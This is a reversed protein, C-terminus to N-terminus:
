AEDPQPDSEFVTVPTGPDRSSGEAMSDYPAVPHVWRWIWQAAEPTVNLCGHSRPRGYDGHWYTGHIAHGLTTFFTNFPVGPLDFFDPDSFAENDPDSYMYRSPQKYVVSHEGVPTKYGGGGSSTLTSFALVGDEYAEIRQNTLDVRLEKNQVDPNIPTFENAEIIRLHRGILYVPPQDPKDNYVKYWTYGGADEETAIVRHVGGYYYWIPDEGGGTEEPDLRYVAGAPQLRALTRPVIIQGWFGFNDESEELGTIVTPTRYPKMTQVTTTYIFGNQVRYWTRNNPNSGEGDVVGFLPIVTEPALWAALPQNLGTTERVPTTATIRGWMPFRSAKPSMFDLEGSTYYDVAPDAAEASKVFFYPMSLGAAAAGAAQAASKLFGRRSVGKDNKDVMRAFTEEGIGPHSETDVEVFCYIWDIEFSRYTAPEFLGPVISTGALV